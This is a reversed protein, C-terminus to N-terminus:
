VIDSGGWNKKFFGCCKRTKSLNAYLSLCGDYINLYIKGSLQAKRGAEIASVGGLFNNGRVEM